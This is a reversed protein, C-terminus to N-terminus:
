CLIPVSEQQRLEYRQEHPLGEDKARAEIKYLAQIAKLMWECRVKDNALAQKMIIGHM